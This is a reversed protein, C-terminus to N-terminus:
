NALLFINPKQGNTSRISHRDVGGPVTPAIDVLIDCWALVVTASLQNGCVLASNGWKGM